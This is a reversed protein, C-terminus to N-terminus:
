GKGALEDAEGAIFQLARVVKANSPIGPWRKIAAQLEAPEPFVCCMTLLNPFATRRTSDELRMGQFAGYEAESPNRLVLDGMRLELKVLENGPAPYKQVLADWEEQTIQRMGM